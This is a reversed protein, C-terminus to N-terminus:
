DAPNKRQPEDTSQGMQLQEAWGTRGERGPGNTREGPRNQAHRVGSHTPDYDDQQEDRTPQPSYESGESLRYGDVLRDNSVLGPAAGTQQSSSQPVHRANTGQQQLREPTTGAATARENISREERASRDDSANTQERSTDLSTGEMGM